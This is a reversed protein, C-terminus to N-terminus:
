VRTRDRSKCKKLKKIKKIKKNKKNELWFICLPKKQKKGIYIQSPCYKLKGALNVCPSKQGALFYM